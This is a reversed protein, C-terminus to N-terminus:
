QVLHIEDNKIHKFIQLDKPSVLCDIFTIRHFLSNKSRLDTYRNRRKLCLRCVNNPFVVSKNPLNQYIHRSFLKYVRNCIRNEFGGSFSNKKKLM